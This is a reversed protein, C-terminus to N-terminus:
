ASRTTYSVLDYRPIRYREVRGCTLRHEGWSGVRVEVDARGVGDIVFTAVLGDDTARSQEHAVADM